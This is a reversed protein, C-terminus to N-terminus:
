AKTYGDFWVGAKTTRPDNCHLRAIELSSVVKVLKKHGSKYFRYIKYSGMDVELDIGLRVSVHIYDNTM